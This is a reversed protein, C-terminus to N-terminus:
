LYRKEQALRDKLQAIERYAHANQLAAAIQNAVQQLYEVEAPGFANENMSSPNLAGWVQNGAILPVSCVSRIGAEYMIKALPEHLNHLDSATLFAVNRTQIARASLAQEIRFMGETTSSVKGNWLTETCTYTRAM